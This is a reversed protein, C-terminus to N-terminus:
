RSRVDRAKALFDGLEGAPLKSAEEYARQADETRGLQEYCRAKMLLCFGRKSQDAAVKDFNDAAAAYQGRAYQACAILATADLDGIRLALAERGYGIAREPMGAGLAAQGMNVWFEASDRENAGLRGYYGLAKDYQGSNMSCLATLQLYLRKSEAHSCKDLLDEFIEAAECWKGSFVYCYGLAEAIDNNDATMLMAQRYLRIAAEDKGTRLMLEAAAKKLSVSHPVVQIRQQLLELARSNNELAVEVDAVALVYDVNRPELTLARDYFERAKQYEREQQAAAGLWYWGEHLEDDLEVTHQLERIAIETSGEGLLLKGLLLHAPAIQPDANVCQRVLKTAEEYNGSDYQQQALALKIKASTRNWRAEAAVKSKTHSQCGASASLAVLLIMVALKRLM